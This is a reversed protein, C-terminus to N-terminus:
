STYFIDNSAFCVSDIIGILALFALISISKFCILIQCTYTRDSFTNLVNEIYANITLISISKFCILIQCTYTSDSFTFYIHNIIRTFTFYALRTVLIVKIIIKTRHSSTLNVFSIRSFTFLASKIIFKLCNLIQPTYSINLFAYSMGNLIRCFTLFTLSSKFDNPLITTYFRNLITTYIIM